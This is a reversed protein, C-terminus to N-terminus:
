ISDELLKGGWCGAEEGSGACHKRELMQNIGMWRERGEQIRVERKGKKM